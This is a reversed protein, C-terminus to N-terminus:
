SQPRLRTRRVRTPTSTWECWRSAAPAAPPTYYLRDNDRLHSDIVSVTLPQPPIKREGTQWAELRHTETVYIPHRDRHSYAGFDYRDILEVGHDSFLWRFFPLALDSQLGASQAAINGM